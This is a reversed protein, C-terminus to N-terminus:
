LWLSEPPLLIDRPPFVPVGPGWIKRKQKRIVMLHATNDVVCEPTGAESRAWLATCPWTVPPQSRQVLIVKGGKVSGEIDAAFSVLLMGSDLTNM